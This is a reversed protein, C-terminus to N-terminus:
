FFPNHAREQAITSAPGHGPLVVTDAPLSFLKSRINTLLDKYGYREGFIRGASGAFLTDGTFLSDKYLFCVSGDTHGPTYVIGIEGDGFPLSGADEAALAGRAAAGVAKADLPHIVPRADPFAKRLAGLADVHDPHKHTLLIYQLQAGSRRLTSVINDAAGGPDVFAAIKQQALTLFYGNSMYPHNFQHGIYKPQEISPPQWRQLASDVLKAPDLHLAKALARAEPENGTARDAMFDAIRRADIGTQEALADRSVRTGEAAKRVIDGFTDELPAEIQM